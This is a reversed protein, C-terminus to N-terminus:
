NPKALPRNSGSTRSDAFVQGTAKFASFSWRQQSALGYTAGCKWGTDTMLCIMVDVPQGCGNMVSAATNGKFSANLQTEPTTVCQNADTDTSAQGLKHRQDFDSRLKGATGEVEAKYAALDAEHKRQAEAAAAAQADHEALAALAAAKQEEQKRAVADKAREYEEVQRKQEALEAEYKELAQRNREEVARHKEAAVDAASPVAPPAPTADASDSANQKSARDERDDSESAAAEKKGGSSLASAKEIARSLMEESPAPVFMTTRTTERMEKEARARAEEPSNAFICQGNQFFELTRDIHKSLFSAYEEYLEGTLEPYSGYSSYYMEYYLPGAPKFPESWMDISVEGAHPDGSTSPAYFFMKCTTWAVPHTVPQVQESSVAAASAAQGFISAAVPILLKRVFRM